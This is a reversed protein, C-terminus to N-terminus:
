LCRFSIQDIDPQIESRFIWFCCIPLDCPNFSGYVPEVIEWSQPRCSVINTGFDPCQDDM